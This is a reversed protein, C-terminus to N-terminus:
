PFCGHKKSSKLMQEATKKAQTLTKFGGFCAAIRYSSALNQILEGMGSGYLGYKEGYTYHAQNPAADVFYPTEKWAGFKNKREYLRHRVGGHAQEHSFWKMEM